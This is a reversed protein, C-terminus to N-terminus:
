KLADPKDAPGYMQEFRFVVDPMGAIRRIRILM